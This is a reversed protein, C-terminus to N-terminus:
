PSSKKTNAVQTVTGPLPLDDRWGKFRIVRKTIRRGEGSVGLSIQKEDASAGLLGKGTAEYYEEIEVEDATEIRSAIALEQQAKAMTQALEAKSEDRQIQLRFASIEKEDPSRSLLSAIAEYVKIQPAYLVKLTRVLTSDQETSM